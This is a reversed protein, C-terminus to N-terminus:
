DDSLLLSPAAGTPEFESTLPESWLHTPQGIHNGDSKWLLYSGAPDTFIQPDISGGLTTQCVLFGPDDDVFPGTPSASTARGICEDGAVPDDATYYMVFQGDAAQAVSPSWTSGGGAFSPLTPFIDTAVTSWTTANTSTAGPTITAVTETSYSYLTGEFEMVSPDAFDQNYVPTWPELGSAGAAPSGPLSALGAASVVGVVGVV